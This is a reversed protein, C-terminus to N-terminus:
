ATQIAYTVSIGQNEAWASSAFSQGCMITGSSLSTENCLGACNINGGATGSVFETTFNVTHSGSSAASIDSSRRTEGPLATANSAPAGGTGLALAAVQKSGTIGAFCGLIYDKWGLNVIQNEIWGSDGVIKTQGGDDEGIKIRFFGKLKMGDKSM